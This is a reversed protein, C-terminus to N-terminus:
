SALPMLRAIPPPRTCRLWQLPDVYRGGIRVSLHVAAVGHDTGSTGVVTRAAVRDGPQVTVSALYSYSSKLGGGHEVTVTTVGAVSGAFTVVGGAVTHVPSGEAVAFDAGWHGAFRGEPAFPRVIPGDVPPPVCLMAVLIM